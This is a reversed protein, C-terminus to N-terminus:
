MEATSRLKKAPEQLNGPNPMQSNGIHENSLFELIEALGKQGM